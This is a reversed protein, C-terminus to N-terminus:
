GARRSQWVGWHGRVRPKIHEAALPVQLLPNDLLYMQGVPLYNAARWWAHVRQLDETAVPQGRELLQLQASM